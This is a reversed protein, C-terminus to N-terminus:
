KAKNTRSDWGTKIQQGTPRGDAGIPFYIWQISAFSFNCRELPRPVSKDEPIEIKASTVVVESLEIRLIEMQRDTIDLVVTKIIHGGGSAFVALLPTATDVFKVISLSSQAVTGTGPMSASHLVETGFSLVDIWNKHRDETSGGPIGDVFLFAGLAYGQSVSGLSVIGAIFVAFLSKRM